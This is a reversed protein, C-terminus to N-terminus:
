HVRDQFILSYAKLDLLDLTSLLVVSPFSENYLDNSTSQVYQSVKLM